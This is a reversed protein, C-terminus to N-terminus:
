RPSFVAAEIGKGAILRPPSKSNEPDLFFLNDESRPQRTTSDRLGATCIASIYKGGPSWSLSHCSLRLNEGYPGMRTGDRNLVFVRPVVQSSVSGVSFEEDALPREETFALRTGDPSWAFSPWERESGAVVHVGSGDSQCIVLEWSKGVHAIYAIQKGDPSWLPDWGDQVLVRPPTGEAVPVVCLFGQYVGLRIESTCTYAIRSGDPSWSPAAARKVLLRPSRHAMVDILYVSSEIIGSGDASPGLFVGGVALTRGDPSWALTPPRGFQFGALHRRNTGGADMIMVESTTWRKKDATTREDLHIYALTAGDPSWAPSYSRDDTTLQVEKGPEEAGAVFINTSKPADFVADPYTMNRVFAIKSANSPPVASPPPSVKEQAQGAHVSSRIGSPGAALLFLTLLLGRLKM